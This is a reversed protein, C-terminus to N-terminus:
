ETHCYIGCNLGVFLTSHSETYFYNVEKKKVKVAIMAVFLFVDGTKCGTQGGYYIAAM